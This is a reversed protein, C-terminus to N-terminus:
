KKQRQLLKTCVWNKKLLQWDTLLGYELVRKVIFRRNEELSLDEIAVDWFLHPSFGELQPDIKHM